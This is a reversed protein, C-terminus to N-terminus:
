GNSQVLKSELRTLLDTDVDVHVVRSAFLWDLRELALQEPPDSAVSALVIHRIWACSGGKLFLFVELFLLEIAACFFHM